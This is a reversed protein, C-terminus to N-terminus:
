SSERRYAQIMAKAATRLKSMESPSLNAKENKAFAALLFVPADSCAFLYIIRAGGRKGQGDRGVRVKYLGSGLAQGIGRNQSVLDIIRERATGDFIGKCSNLYAPTEVVTCFM